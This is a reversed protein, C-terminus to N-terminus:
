KNSKVGNCARCLMQCNDSTTKGGKSWPIIHDGDMDKSEFHNGCKICIGKQREYAQNKMKDNFGRISLHKENGGLLYEYIGKQNTVDEDQLLEVIRKELDNPNYYNDKFENYLTGWQVGKMINRANPFTTKVWHFVNQFYTWLESADKSHQNKSMYDEISQDDREGIWRLATELYEQRITKGIMYDKAIQYAPCGTKSFYRKVDYLWSGTYVANRLEQPTLKMGAINITRFWDLKEKDTGECFYVMLKYDLIADQEEKTLNHFYQYEVSFAGNLYSCLSISRQQGDLVEFTGDDNKVWYMVNLPFNKKVTDIVADREKDGYVFERQYPPRINLKGSYGFVGDESNNAYGKFLERVPIEQLKIKM